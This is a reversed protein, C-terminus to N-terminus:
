SCPVKPFGNKVREEADKSLGPSVPPDKGKLHDPLAQQGAFRAFLLHIGEDVKVCWWM